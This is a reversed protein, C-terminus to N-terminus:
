HLREYRSVTDLLDRAYEPDGPDLRAVCWAAHAALLRGGAADLREAARAIRALLELCSADEALLDEITRVDAEVSDLTRLLEDRRAPSIM